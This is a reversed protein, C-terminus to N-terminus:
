ESTLFALVRANFQGAAGLNSLHAAPLETFEAGRIAAALARSAELTPAPDHTGAIVLTPARIKALDAREDADRM